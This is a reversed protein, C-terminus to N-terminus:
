SKYTASVAKGRSVIGCLVSIFYKEVIHFKSFIKKQFGRKTSTFWPNTNRDIRKKLFFKTLLVSEDQPFM